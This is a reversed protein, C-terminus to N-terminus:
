FKKIYEYITIVIASGPIVTALRMSLGRYLGYLGAARYIGSFGVIAAPGPGPGPGPGSGAVALQRHTKLVDFPHTCIAALGSASAGASFTALNSFSLDQQQQQQQQSRSLSRSAVPMSPQQPSVILAEWLPRFIDFAYWYIASYPADRAVTSGWGRYFGKLGHEQKISKVIELATRSSGGTQITRLVELPSMLTVCFIRSVFGAVGPSLSAYREPLIHLAFTAKTNEYISMYIVTNPVAQLLGVPTGAWFGKLRKHRYISNVARWISLSSQSQLHVKIVTIPNLALVAVGSSISSALLQKYLASKFVTGLSVEPSCAGDLCNICENSM